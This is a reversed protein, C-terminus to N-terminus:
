NISIEVLFRKLVSLQYLINRENTYTADNVSKDYQWLDFKTGDITIKVYFHGGIDGDFLVTLDNLENLYEVWWYGTYTGQKYINFGSINKSFYVKIINLIDKINTEDNVM